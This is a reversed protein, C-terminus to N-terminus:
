CILWSISIALYHKIKFKLRVILKNTVLVIMLDFNTIISTQTKIEHDFHQGGSWITFINNHIKIEHVFQIKVEHVFSNQDWSIRGWSWEGAV